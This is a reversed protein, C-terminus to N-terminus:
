QLGLAHVSTLPVGFSASMLERDGQSSAIIYDYIKANKKILRKKSDDLNHMLNEIKKFTAGHWYNIILRTSSPSSLFSDRVSHSIFVIGCRWLYFLYSISFSSFIKVGNELLEQKIKQPIGGISLVALQQPLNNSIFYECMVRHNASFVTNKKVVFLVKNSQKKFFPDFWDVITFLLQRIKLRQYIRRRYLPM